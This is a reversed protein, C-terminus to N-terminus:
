PKMDFFKRSLKKDSMRSHQRSPRRRLELRRFLRFPNETCADAAIDVTLVGRSPSETRALLRSQRMGILVYTLFYDKNKIMGHCEKSSISWDRILNAQKASLTRERERIFQGSTLEVQKGTTRVCSTITNM